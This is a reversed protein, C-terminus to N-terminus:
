LFDFITQRIKGLFGHNCKCFEMEERDDSVSGLERDRRYLAEESEKCIIEVVWRLAQQVSMNLAPQVAIGVREYIRPKPEGEVDGHEFLVAHEGAYHPWLTRDFYERTNWTMRERSTSQDNSRNFRRTMSEERSARLLIKIDLLSRITESHFLLDGEIVAITRGDQLGQVGALVSRLEELLEPPVRSQAREEQEMPQGSNFAPPTRGERKSYEVLRKFASFDVTHRHTALKGDTPPVMLHEPVLFDEQHIIFYPTTQPLVASLLHALTTKGSSPSGSIGILTAPRSLVTPIPTHAVHLMSPLSGDIDGSSEEVPAKKEKHGDLSEQQQYEPAAETLHEATIPLEEAAQSVELAPPPLESVPSFYTSGGTHSPGVISPRAQPKGLPALDASSFYDSQGAAAEPVAKPSAVTVRINPAEESLPLTTAVPTDPLPVAAAAPTEPPKSSSAASSSAGEPFKVSKTKKHRSLTPFPPLPPESPAPSTPHNKMSGRSSANIMDDIFCDM